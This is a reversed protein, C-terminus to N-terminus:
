RGAMLSPSLRTNPLPHLAQAKGGPAFEAPHRSGRCDPQRRGRRLGGASRFRSPFARRTPGVSFALPRIKTPRSIMPSRRVSILTVLGVQTRSISAAKGSIENIVPISISAISLRMSLYCSPPGVDAKACRARIVASTFTALRVGSPRRGSLAHM